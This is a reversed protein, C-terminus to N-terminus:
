GNMIRKYAPITLFEVVTENLCMDLFLNAGDKLSPNDWVIKGTIAELLGHSVPTGDDLTAGHKIWQWIQTRSIEATAADEMLNYLPVCGNGNLWASIYRIGVDVNQQLGQRTITGQSPQLLDSQSCSCETKLSIQNKGPMFENFVDKAISILGPHAVWTGDHGAAVERRKDQYVKEMASANAAADDRIPIQAAMGGMAHIGRKHCTHVVLNSYATMFSSEMTVQSRDPLVYSPDGGLTKIYSFIYDWRGCNLGASHEKLEYLIENMQFAAPLTELLVTAKITGPEIGLKEQTWTFVSNWWRAELYHELKPLYFYPARGSDVLYRANNYMFIGFDFLCAPVDEGGVKFHSEPLHLGRPRVFLVAPNSCLRYTGKTPHEYTITGRVADYLNQQGSLVNEWTPSMSDEFDAMFVNAGSNLANIVMKRDPPGTIEVRRDHIDEPVPSVEWTSNRIGETEQLFDPLHGSDYQLQRDRRAGLLVKLSTHFVGALETIFEEAGADLINNEV